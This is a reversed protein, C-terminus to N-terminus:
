LGDLKAERSRVVVRRILMSSAQLGSLLAFGIRIRTAPTANVSWSTSGHDYIAGGQDIVTSQRAGAPRDPIQLRNWRSRAKWVSDPDFSVTPLAVLSVASADFMQTFIADGSIQMMRKNAQDVNNDISCITGGYDAGPLSVGEVYLEGEYNMEIPLTETRAPTATASRSARM